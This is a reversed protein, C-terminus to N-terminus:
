DDKDLDYFADSLKEILEKRKIKGNDYLKLIPNIREYVRKEQMRIDNTFEKQEKDIKCKKKIEIPCINVQCRRSIKAQAIDFM